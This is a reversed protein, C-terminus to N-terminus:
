REEQVSHAHDFIAILTSQRPSYKVQDLAQLTQMHQQRERALDTNEKMQNTKKGNPNTVICNAISFHLTSNSM